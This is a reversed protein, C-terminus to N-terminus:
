ERGEFIGECPCNQRQMKQFECYKLCAEKSPQDRFWGIGIWGGKGDYVMEGCNSWANKQVDRVISQYEPQRFGRNAKEVQAVSILSGVNREAEVDPSSIILNPKGFGSPLEQIQIRRWERDQYKFIVYPPNPRGWKNYSLCGAPSTLVYANSQEVGVLMANFNASGIAEDYSDEWVVREMTKPIVFILRQNGIPPRQGIEHRGKRMVNREVVIRTGDPQLTEEKWSAGGLGFLGASANVSAGLILVMLFNVVRTM